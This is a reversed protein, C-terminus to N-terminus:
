KAYTEHDANSGQKVCLYEAPCGRPSSPLSVSHRFSVQLLNRDLFELFTLLRRGQSIGETHLITCRNSDECSVGVVDARNTDFVKLIALLQAHKGAIVTIIKEHWWMTKLSLPKTYVKSIGCSVVLLADVRPQQLAFARTGDALLTDHRTGLALGGVRAVELALRVVVHAGRSGSSVARRRRQVSTATTARHLAALRRRQQESRM